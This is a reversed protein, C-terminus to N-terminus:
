FRKFARCRFVSYGYVVQRDVCRLGCHACIRGIMRAAELTVSAGEGFVRGNAWRKPRSRGGAEGQVRAPRHHAQRQM